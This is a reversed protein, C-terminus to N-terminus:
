SNLTTCYRSELIKTLSEGGTTESKAPVPFMSEESFPMDVFGENRGDDLRQYKAPFPVFITERETKPWKVFITQSKSGRQPPSISLKANLDHM